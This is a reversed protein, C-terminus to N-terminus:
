LRKVISNKLHQRKARVTSLSPITTEPSSAQYLAGRGGYNWIIENLFCGKGFVEDLLVRIYSNVHWDCHVFIKGKETLLRKMLKLRPQLMDLYGDIGGAWTDTYATREIKVGEVRLRHSYDAKSGFPPDIYILDVAGEYGQKLLTEMAILNDGWILRNPSGKDKLCPTTCAEMRNSPNPIVLEYAELAPKEPSLASEPKSDWTLCATDRKRKGKILGKKTV